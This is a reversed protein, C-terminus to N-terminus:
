NTHNFIGFGLTEIMINMGVINLPNLGVLKSKMQHDREMQHTHTSFLASVTASISPTLNSVLKM